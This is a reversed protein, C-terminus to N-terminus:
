DEEPPPPATSLLKNVVDEDTVPPLHRDAHAALISAHCELPYCHCGLVKGQLADVRRAYEPDFAIRKAMYAKFMQLVASRQRENKLVIPNGFYGDSKGTPDSGRRGVYVDCAAGKNVNVVRTRPM